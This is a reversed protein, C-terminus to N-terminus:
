FQLLFGLSPIRPVTNRRELELGGEEADLEYATCCFNARNLLNAVELYTSLSSRRFAFKREVRVDVSRYAAARRANRAGTRLIPVDEDDDLYVDTTPWGSRHVVGLSANWHETSWDLVASVAHRQDWSRRVDFGDLKESANSWSYGLSWSLPGADKRYLLVEVGRARARSPVIAIRDPRLEPVLTLPNLLNEYRPRLHNLRKNYLETRLAIGSAFQHELGLSAQDARQARFFETVGDAVQLEDIGQSQYVRGWSARVYTRDGIQYRAGVRPDARQNEWRVGIDTTLEPSFGYRVTSYLSYDTRHPRVRFSRSRAQETPAGSSDVLLEFEAEDQYDYAGRAHRVEGGFQVLWRGTAHWSWDSQVSDVAFSRQDVLRGRGVGELDTWGTRDSDLQAHAILTAGNLQPSLQHDLRVWHYRDRYEASAREEQDEATLSIKDAFYLTGATVRLRDSLRYSVKGFADSYAPAGPTDSLADYWLDLNSRRFSTVWEGREAAFQGSSLASTNFFSVNIERYRPAPAELSSIDIVSSMRDGYRAAFGGTYVDVSSVIRPDIASFLTQFDKLHFPNYLRIGDFRVLTEGAEGGRVHSRASLGNTAAGPLRAVARLPDDGLDPLREIDTGSLSAIPSILSHTLEYQSAAVVIEELPVVSQAPAATAMVLSDKLPSELPRLERGRVIAIVGGPGPRAQLGFPALIEALVREADTAAPETRVRMWPKVLASSYIITVGRRELTVLAEELSLGRFGGPLDAAAPLCMLMLAGALSPRASRIPMAAKM